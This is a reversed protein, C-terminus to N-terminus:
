NVSTKISLNKLAIRMKNCKYKFSFYMLVIGHFENFHKLREKITTKPLLERQFQTFGSKKLKFVEM